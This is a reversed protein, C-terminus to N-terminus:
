KLDARDGDQKREGTQGNGTSSEGDSSSISSRISGNRHDAQVGGGVVEAEVSQGVTLIRARSGV